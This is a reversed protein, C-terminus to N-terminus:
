RRYLGHEHIYMEVAPPVLYRISQGEAVRRRIDSSSISIRHGAIIDAALKSPWPADLMLAEERITAREYGPREFSVVRCLELLEYVDKWAHLELLSDTGILFCIESDPYMGRLERVTDVSYSVGDRRIESESVGFREDGEVAHELMALRHRAALLHRPSKHPPISCPVLLMRSLELREIADQAVILHGIHVPSFTGGLIGIASHM